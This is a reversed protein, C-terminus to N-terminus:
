TISELLRITKDLQEQTKLETVCVLLADSLSPYWRGLPAGAIVGAELLRQQVDEMPRRGQWRVAFENFFPQAFRLSWGAVKAWREAFAHAQRANLEALERMGAPGLLSLYITARLALLGQNTCINSTAKERRIHQERAQLTLVFGRRGQADTTLGAVRGPMKRVLARTTAFFGLTPGGYSIPNGLCQAEGITIDAGCAGPPNLLGLAIPYASVIALAGRAHAAASLEAVPEVCGFFNPSQVLVGGVHDDLQKALAALDTVGDVAAIEQVTVGSGQAYAQLTRRYEPHVTESILLRSRGATRAALLGAEALASAGDYLSANAVEMGTLECIMTQYEYIAQLTGQSAEPQYPTYATAFEGRAALADVASPIFHEYMGAGLFSVVQDLSVNRNALSQFYALVEPESLGAALQLATARLERPIDTLLREFSEVGVAGLMEQLQDDTNTVYDM